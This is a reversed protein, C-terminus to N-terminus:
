EEKGGMVVLTNHEERGACEVGSESTETEGHLDAEDEDKEEKEGIGWNWGKPSCM